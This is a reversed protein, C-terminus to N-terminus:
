ATRSREASRGAFDSECGERRRRFNKVAIGTNGLPNRGDAIEQAVM